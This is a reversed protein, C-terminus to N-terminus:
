ESPEPDAGNLLPGGNHGPGPPKGERSAMVIMFARPGYILMVCWVFALLAGTKGTVKIKYYELLAAGSEALMGAEEEDLILTKGIDRVLENDSKQFLGSVVAHVQVITRKAPELNRKTVSKKESPRETQFLEIPRGAEKQRAKWARGEKSRLDAPKPDDAPSFNETVPNLGTDGSIENM